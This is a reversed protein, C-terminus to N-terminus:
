TDNQEIALLEDNLFRAPLHWGKGMRSDLGKSRLPRWGEHPSQRLCMERPEGCYRAVWNDSFAILQNSNAGKSETWTSLPLLTEVNLLEKYYAHEERISLLLTRRSPSLEALTSS